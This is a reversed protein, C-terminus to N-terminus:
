LPFGMRELHRMVRKDLEKAKAELEPLPTEYREALEKVRTTLRQSVRDLEDHIAKDLSAMWKDEVVLGKIEAETLKPYRAYAEADLEAVATKLQKKLEAAEADLALWESLVAAEAKAEADGKIEKLRSAVAARNLKDFDAFAGDDGGEEEELEALKSSAAELEADIADIAEQEGAFCRAVILSKPLLDCAWGKDMKKDPKGDKGKKIEIVRHTEAKWGEDAIIYADDQM